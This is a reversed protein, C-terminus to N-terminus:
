SLSLIVRCADLSTMCEACPKWLSVSSILQMQVAHIFEEGAPLLDMLCLLASVAFYPCRNGQVLKEGGEQKM